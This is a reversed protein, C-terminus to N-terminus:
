MSNSRSWPGVPRSRPARVGASVATDITASIRATREPRAASGNPSVVPRIPGHRSRPEPHDATDAGPVGSQLVRRHLGREIGVVLTRDLKVRAVPFGKVPEDLEAM